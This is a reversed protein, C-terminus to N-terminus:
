ILGVIGISHSIAHYDCQVTVVAAGPAAGKNPIDKGQMKIMKKAQERQSERKKEQSEAQLLDALRLPRTDLLLSQLDRKVTPTCWM